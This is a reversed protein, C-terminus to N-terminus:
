GRAHGLPQDEVAPGRGAHAKAPLAASYSARGLGLNQKGGARDIRRLDQLMEPMPRGSTSRGEADVTTCSLGPTPSFRCSWRCILVTKRTLLAPVRLVM